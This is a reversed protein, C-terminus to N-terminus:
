KSTEFDTACVKSKQHAPFTKLRMSFSWFAAFVTLKFTKQDIQGLFTGYKTM